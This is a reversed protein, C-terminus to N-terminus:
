SDSEQVTTDALRVTNVGSDPRGWGGGGPTHITLEDGPQATWQAPARSDIGAVTRWDEGPAGAEGGALGPAGASRRQAMLSIKAPALFVWRKVVGDGGPHQGAGGSGLRRSWQVIRVPFRSETVEIDTARTNTMHVQQASPGAFGPGAGSGGAITEYFTGSPTGVTLNNMTGQSAAQAGIAQLLADVLRQSTEVNGGAVAAPYQPDFLGGPNIIMEIPRLTGENLISSGEPLLSRFVYLVAAHAVAQPANLNGPHPPASLHLRARAGEVQLSVEIQTGDDLVETATYTGSMQSLLEGVSREAQDLLHGLQAQYVAVGLQAILAQVGCAGAECAAVQAELDALVEEPQRCGALEPPMFRGEEALQVQKLQLGEEDIHVADVPMSGPRTGGVDIHHGRCAVLGVLAGDVFVPRTVTIDPLHSGGAYPDNSAWAQGPQLRSGHRQILDRVTAGMAGLHVPVHPANAVLSGRADFLATSFDQRERISVSRALRRLREGMQEAIAMVRTGFVATHVPHPETSLTSRQGAYHHLALHEDHLEARWGPLLCLTTGRGRILAPGCCGDAQETDLLPISRWGDFWAQVTRTPQPDPALRLGSMPLEPETISLRVEVAEVRQDPRSFGFCRRHAQHFAEILAPSLQAQDLGPQQLDLDLELVTDTGTHRAALRYCQQGEFPRNLAAIAEAITTRVPAVQETRRQATGIGLASFVSALRPVLVTRIGLAQAIACGHGPGAGGFAILAHEAPDVGRAAALARVARAAAEAGVALFGAAAAETPMGCQLADIAERAADMSLPQDRQPGCICPFDPLLGLIASADTLTAPGGRGYAAPGPQAGASRPGVQMVGGQMTLISGGGAAVTELQVAAVRLSMGDIKLTDTREPEGDIRCVDTSTGGMDLGFAPGVGARAALRAAAVVGGAPGSLIAQFGRWDEQRSLGGDSRMYLGRARPLLPTLAADVLTTQLRALYGQAPAVEHGLSISGFGSARCAAALERESDRHLPGHILVIAVSDIGQARWDALREQDVHVPVLVEGNAAIRGQVELVGTCLPVPRGETRDFLKPRRQDGIWPMDGFGANTLLLVPAGTRELLANTAATTGRRPEPDDGGLAGLDAEDSWLKECSLRGDADLRLVDTFTGGQDM